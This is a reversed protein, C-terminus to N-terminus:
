PHVDACPKGGIRVWTNCITMSYGFDIQTYYWYYGSHDNCVVSGTEWIENSPAWFVAYTCIAQPIVATQTYWEDVHLGSGTVGIFVAGSWGYHSDPTVHSAPLAGGRSTSGQETRVASKPGTPAAINPVLGYQALQEVTLTQWNGPLTIKKGTSAITAHIEASSAPASPAASSRAGLAVSPSLILGVAIALTGVTSVLTRPRFM